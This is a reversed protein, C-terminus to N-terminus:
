PDRLENNAIKLIKYIVWIVGLLGLALMINVSWVVDNM